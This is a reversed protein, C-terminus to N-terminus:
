LAAWVMLAQKPNVFLRISSPRRNKANPRQKDKSRQQNRRSRFKAALERRAGDDAELAEIVARLDSDTLFLAGKGPPVGAFPGKPERSARNAALTARDFPTTAKGEAM